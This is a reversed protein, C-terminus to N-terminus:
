VLKGTSEAKQEAQLMIKAQKLLRRLNKEVDTSKVYPTKGRAVFVLDFGPKISPQLSFVAERIVRRARNRKVANGVKKSATIGIRSVKKRNKLVYLVVVGSVFSNGRNYARRFEYNNRITKDGNM